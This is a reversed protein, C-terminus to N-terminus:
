RKPRMDAPRPLPGENKAVMAIKKIRKVPPKPWLVSARRQIAAVIKDCQERGEIVMAPIEISHSEDDVSPDFKIQM